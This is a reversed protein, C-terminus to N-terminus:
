MICIYRGAMNEGAFQGTKLANDYHEIRKRVLKDDVFSAVDGAVFINKKNTELM